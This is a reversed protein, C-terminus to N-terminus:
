TRPPQRSPRLLAVAAGADGRVADGAGGADRIVIEADVRHEGAEVYRWVVKGTM